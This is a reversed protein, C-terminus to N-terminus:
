AVVSGINCGSSGVTESKQEHYQQGVNESNEKLGQADPETGDSAHIKGLAASSVAWAPEIVDEVEEGFRRYDGSVNCFDDACSYRQVHEDFDWKNRSAGNRDDIHKDNQEEVVRGAHGHSSQAQKLKEHCKQHETHNDAKAILEAQDLTNPNAFHEPTIKWRRRQDFRFAKILSTTDQACGDHRM